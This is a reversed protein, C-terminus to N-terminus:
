PTVPSRPPFSTLAGIGPSPASPRRAGDMDAGGRSSNADAAKLPRAENMEDESRRAGQPRIAWHFSLMGCVEPNWFCKDCSGSFSLAILANRARALPLPRVPRQRLPLPSKCASRRRAEGSRPATEGGATSRRSRQPQPRVAVGNAGAGDGLRRGGRKEFAIRVACARFGKRYTISNRITKGRPGYRLSRQGLVALLDIAGGTRRPSRSRREQARTRIASTVRAGEHIRRGM